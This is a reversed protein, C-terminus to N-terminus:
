SGVVIRWITNDVPPMRLLGDDFEVEIQTCRGNVTSSGTVVSMSFESRVSVDDWNGVSFKEAKTLEFDFSTFSTGINLFSRSAIAVSGSKVFVELSATHEGVSGTGSAFSGSRAANVRITVNEIGDPAVSPETLGVEFIRTTTIPTESNVITSTIETAAGDPVVENLEDFFPTPGWEVGNVDIDSNPRLFGGFAGVQSRATHYSQSGHTEFGGVLDVQRVFSGSAVMVADRAVRGVVELVENAM